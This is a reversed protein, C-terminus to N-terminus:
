FDFDCYLRIQSIDKRAFTLVNEPYDEDPLISVTDADYEKLIGTFEKEGDIKRYTRIEVTNGLNRAFDKEKKLPRDLGPSSVEFTYPDSIYDERDLIENFARSVDVCDDITVGGEKEIYVRLFYAGGEKEYDIDYLALGLSDLVPLILKETKEEYSKRSMGCRLTIQSHAFGVRM